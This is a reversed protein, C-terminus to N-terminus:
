AEDYALNVTPLATGSGAGGAFNAGVGLLLVLFQGNRGTSGASVSANDWVQATGLTTATLASYTSPTVANGSTVDSPADASSSQTYTNSAKWFLSLGTSPLASLYVRRNSITTAGAGTVNLALNKRWSYNTGTSTPIPIPTTGTKSDERNFVIGTEATSGAPESGSAGYYDARLTAM